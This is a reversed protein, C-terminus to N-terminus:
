QPTSRGELGGPGTGCGPKQDSGDSHVAPPGLVRRRHKHGPHAGLFDSFDGLGQHSYGWAGTGDTAEVLAQGLLTVGPTLTRKLFVPTDQVEIAHMKTNTMAVLSM